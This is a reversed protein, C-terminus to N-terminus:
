LNLSLPASQRASAASRAEAPDPDLYGFHALVGQCRAEIAARAEPTLRALAGANADARMHRAMEAFSYFHEVKRMGKVAGAADLIREKDQLCIGRVGATELGCFAYIERAVREPEALLDEFRWTRAGLGELEILRRGVFDYAAAAADLGAGRVLHGECVARGDRILGIFRARPYLAALDEAFALNYNMVKVLLRDPAPVPEILGREALARKYAAVRARNVAASRRLGEATHRARARDLGAAPKRDPDFIDGAGLFIPAYYRWKRLTRGVGQGRMGRLGHARFVEHFEGEPWHTRPHSRLINLVQNTGGRQIGLLFIPQEDMSM